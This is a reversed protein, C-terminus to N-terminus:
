CRTIPKGGVADRDRRSPTRTAVSPSRSVAPGAAQRSSRRRHRAPGSDTVGRRGSWCARGTRATRPRPTPGAAAFLSSRPGACPRPASGKGPKQPSSGPHRWRPAKRDQRRGAGARDAMSACGTRSPRGPGGRLAGADGEQGFCREPAPRDNLAARNRSSADDDGPRGPASPAAPSRHLLAFPSSAACAM